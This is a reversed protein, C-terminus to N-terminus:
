WNYINVLPPKSQVKPLIETDKSYRFPLTLFSLNKLLPKQSLMFGPLVKPWSGNATYDVYDQMSKKTKDWQLLLRHIENGDLDEIDIRVARSKWLVVHQIGKLKSKDVNKIIMHFDYKSCHDSRYDAPNLVQWFLGILINWENQLLNCINGEM